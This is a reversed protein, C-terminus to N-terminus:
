SLQTNRVSPKGTPKPTASSDLQSFTTDLRVGAAALDVAEARSGPANDRTALGTDRMPAAANDPQHQRTRLAIAEPSISTSQQGNKDILATGALFGGFLGAVAFLPSDAFAGLLLGVLGLVIGGIHSQAQAALPSFLPEKDDALPGAPQAIGTANPLQSETNKVM